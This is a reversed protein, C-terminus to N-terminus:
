AKNLETLYSSTEKKLENSIFREFKTYEDVAFRLKELEEIPCSLMQKHLTEKRLAVCPLVVNKLDNLNIMLRCRHAQLM